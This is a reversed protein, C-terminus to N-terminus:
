LVPNKQYSNKLGQQKTLVLPQKSLERSQKNLLHLTYKNSPEYEFSLADIKSPLTSWTRTDAKSTMASVLSVGRLVNGTDLKNAIAESTVTKTGVNVVQRLIMGLVREKFINIVIADVDTLISSSAVIVGRKDKIIVRSASSQAMKFTPFSVFQMAGNLYIPVKM